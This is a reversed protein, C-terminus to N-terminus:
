RVTRVLSRTMYVCAIQLGQSTTHINESVSDYGLAAYFPVANLSSNLSLSELGERLAANELDALLQRGLGRRGADPAVFVAEIEASSIKLAAFGAIRSEVTAVVFYENGIRTPFTEPLPGSAWRDLLEAPYHSRCTWRIADARIAWMAPADSATARRVSAM